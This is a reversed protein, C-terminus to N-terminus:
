GGGGKRSRSRPVPARAPRDATPPTESSRDEPPRDETPHDDSPHAVAVLTDLALQPPLLHRASFTALRRVPTMSAHGIYHIEASRFGNVALVRRLTSECYWSTHEPHVRAHGGFRYVFNGVYFANPTTLVLRGGPALHRRVSTLFGRVDDLHEILEGAFVVEFSRHLDFSRADAVRVDYGEANLKAVTTENIDIGVLDPIEEALLGHLWDPRGYRSACGVDLLSPSRLFPRVADFRERLSDTGNWAPQLFHGSRTRVASM